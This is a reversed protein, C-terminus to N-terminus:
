DMLFRENLEKTPMMCKERKGFLKYRYKAIFCYILNRLQPPILLMFKLKSEWTSLYSLARLAATSRFSYREGEILVLSDLYNQDINKEGLLKKAASSQLAAFHIKGEPDRKM